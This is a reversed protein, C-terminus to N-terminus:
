KSADADPQTTGADAPTLGPNGDPEGKQQRVLGDLSDKSNVCLLKLKETVSKTDDEDIAVAKRSDRDVIGVNSGELANELVGVVRDVFAQGEPSVAGRLGPNEFETGLVTKGTWALAKIRNRVDDLQYNPLELVHDKTLSKAGGRRGGGAETGPGGSMGMGGMGGSSGESGVGGPSGKGSKGDGGERGAGSGTSENISAATDDEYSTGTAVLDVDRFLINDFVLQDVSNEILSAEDGFAQVLFETIVLATKLQKDAAVSGLDLQGIADLADLQLWLGAEKSQLTEVASDLVSADGILAAIQMSRRKLWYSLGENEENQLTTAIQNLLTQRDTADIPQGAIKNIQLHRQIGAFAAVKVYDPYASEDNSTLISMLRTFAVKSPQPAQNRGQLRDAPVDDLQGLLYVANLRVAPHLDTNTYIALMSKVTLDIISRRAAGGVGSNLYTKIFKNRTEGLKSIVRTDTLTMSPFEYGELLETLLQTSVNGGSKLAAKIQSLDDKMARDQAKNDKKFKAIVDEDAGIPPMQVSYKAAVDLQKFKGANDQAPALECFALTVIMVLGVGIAFIARSSVRNSNLIAKTRNAM